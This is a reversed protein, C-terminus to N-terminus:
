PNSMSVPLVKGNFTKNGNLAFWAIFTAMQESTVTAKYGPFAHQLMETDVAGLALANVSINRNKFEEALCETLITVAGKSSSYASLGAFKSSGQTGGISTINVIHAAKSKQLFALCHKTMNVLAFVNTQYVTQWDVVSLEEFPKSILVGANNILVDLGTKNLLATLQNLETSEKSIDFAFTHLLNEKNNRKAEASLELLKDSRRAVAIVTHEQKILELATSFGIGSSAGTILIHM